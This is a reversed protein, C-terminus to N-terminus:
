NFRIAALGIPRVLRVAFAAWIALDVYAVAVRELYTFRTMESEYVHLATPELIFVDADGAANGTAAPAANVAAGQVRALATDDGTAADFTGALLEGGAQSMLVSRAKTGRRFPYRVLADALEAAATAETATAVNSVQAGSPVFGAGSITGGQGNAGNLEAYIKAETQRRYSEVMVDGAIVDLAPNSSDFIERTIRFTGSIGAPSVAGVALALSGESPNTGEVHDASANTSSALSPITFPQTSTLTVPTGAAAFPRDFIVQPVFLDPRYGPPIVQSANGTTLAFAAVRNSIDDCEARFRAMRERAEVNGDVGSAFADRVFSPGRGDMTYTPGRHNLYTTV